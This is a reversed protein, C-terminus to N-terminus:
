RGPLEEDEELLAKIEDESFFRGQNMGECDKAAQQWNGPKELNEKWFPFTRCQTPRVPYIKCGSEYFVCDGNPAEILSFREGIKRVYKKSFDRVRIRLFEAIRYM